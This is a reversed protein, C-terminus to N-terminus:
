GATVAEARGRLVLWAAASGWSMFALPIGLGLGAGVAGSDHLAALAVSFAIEYPVLASALHVLVMLWGPLTVLWGSFGRRPLPRALTRLFFLRSVWFAPGCLVAIVAM